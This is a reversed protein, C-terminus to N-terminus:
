QGAQEAQGPKMRLFGQWDPWDDSEWDIGLVKEFEARNWIDFRNKQGVLLAEECLKAKRRLRGPLVIRGQKDLEVYESISYYQLEFSRSEPGPTFETGSRSALAKYGLETFVSLTGRHEGLTIYVGNGERDPGLAARLQAPLTIRNKGDITREHQGTFIRM